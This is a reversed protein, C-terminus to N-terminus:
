IHVREGIKCSHFSHADTARLKDDAKEEKLLLEAQSLILEWKSLFWRDMKSENM